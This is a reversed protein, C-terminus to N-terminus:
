RLLKAQLLMIIGFKNLRNIIKWQNRFPLLWYSIYGDPRMRKKYVILSYSHYSSSIVDWPELADEWLVLEEGSWKYSRLQLYLVIWQCLILLLLWNTRSLFFYRFILYLVFIFIQLVVWVSIWNRFKKCATKM